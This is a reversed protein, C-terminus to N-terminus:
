AAGYAEDSQKDLRALLADAEALVDLNHKQTSAPKVGAYGNDIATWVKRAFDTLPTGDALIVVPLNHHSILLDLYWLEPLSFEVREQPISQLMDRYEHPQVVENEKGAIRTKWAASARLWPRIITLRLEPGATVPENYRKIGGPLELMLREFGPPPWQMGPVCVDVLFSLEAMGLNLIM